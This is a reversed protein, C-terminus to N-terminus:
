YDTVTCHLREPPATALALLPTVGSVQCSLFAEQFLRQGLQPKIPLKPSPPLSPVHWPGPALMLM